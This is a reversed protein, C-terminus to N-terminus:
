YNRYWEESKAATDIVSWLWLALSLIWTFAIGLGFTTINIIGILIAIGLGTWFKWGDKKYTYLWTWFALFVALLVSAVKSKSSRAQAVEVVPSTTQKAGCNPCFEPTGQLEKGCNRCFM